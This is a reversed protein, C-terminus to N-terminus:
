LITPVKASCGPLLLEQQQRPSRLCNGTISCGRFYANGQSAPKKEAPNERLGSSPYKGSSGWFFLEEFGHVSDTSGEASLGRKGWRQGAQVGAYVLAQYSSLSSIGAGVGEATAGEV